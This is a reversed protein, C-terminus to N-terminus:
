PIILMEGKTGRQEGKTGRQEGKTGRERQEEKGGKCAKQKKNEGRQV